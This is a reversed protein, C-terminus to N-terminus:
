VTGCRNLLDRSAEVLMLHWDISPSRGGVDPWWCESILGVTGNHGRCIFAAMPEAATRSEGFATGAKHRCLRSLGCAAGDPFPKNLVQM